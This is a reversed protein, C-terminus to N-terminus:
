LAMKSGDQPWRIGMKVGDQAMNFGDQLWCCCCAIWIIKELINKVDSYAMALGVEVIKCGDQLWCCCCAIWITKELINQLDHSAM